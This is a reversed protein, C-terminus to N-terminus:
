VASKALVLLTEGGLLRVGFDKNVSYVARRAISALRTKWSRNPLNLAAGTYRWDFITFGTDRLTALALDETYYHLHGVKNRVKLLPGAPAVSVASFDLPIHFVFYKAHSRSSERFSFLDHVHDFLNRSIILIFIM